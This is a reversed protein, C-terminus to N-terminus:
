LLRYINSKGEKGTYEIISAHSLVWVMLHVQNLTVKKGEKKLEEFLNKVSFNERLNKPLLAKYSKKGHLITSKGIKELCKGEKTWTKRFRRRGNASQKLLGDDRREETVVVEVVELYFRRDLILPYLGTLERFISYINKKVPSKRKRVEAKTSDFTKIYKETVLPYVVKVKRKQSIYYSCKKLLSSLNGTQIEIISSDKEEIDAIYPGVPAEKKSGPSNLSYLEKLTKHLSSENLTNIM